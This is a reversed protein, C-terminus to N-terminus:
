RRWALWKEFLKAVRPTLRTREYQDAIRKLVEVQTPYCHITQALAGLSLGQNITLTLEGIMEGAHSAVITAGVVRGSGRRTHIAAFGLTEGDVLARDIQGLEERYTDIALRRERAESATFGVHAVEPDTFTCRPIAVRSFKKRGMFLGNKLVLRAMADAAHTFKYETSCDGAAYIRRNTTQLYDNVVVGRECVEVGAAPLNLSEVAPKRGIAVLIEDAILEQKNGGREIVLAKSAGLQQAQISQWGLHLHIGEDAFRARLVQGVEPDEKPLMRDRDNVLHVESGLRRFAQALECGIPGAGVVILSRPLQTLSFITENTQYGLEALGPVAPEAPRSGTAIVSRSFSLTQGGVELTRLGTFRATGLYVDVGLAAFRGASDRHSIQARLRRMRRMVEGFDWAGGCTGRFGLEPSIAMERAARASRIIAKSPVCGFNLCDGGLLREEILAVKRGAGAAGAAAVLGATGGGIAVLNYRGTPTPNQWDAPHAQSLLEENYSDRPSLQM